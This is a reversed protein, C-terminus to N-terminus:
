FLSLDFVEKLSEVNPVKLVQRGEINSNKLGVKGVIIHTTYPDM